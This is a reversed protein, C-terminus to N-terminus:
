IIIVDDDPYGEPEKPIGIIQKKGICNKCIHYFCINGDQEEAEQMLSLLREYLERYRRENLDCEFVSYQVRRGYGELIKAIRSRLRDSTIDYCVVYM